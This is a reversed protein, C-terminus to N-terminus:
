NLDVSVGGILWFGPQPINGRDYYSVDFLNNATLYINWNGQKWNLKLDLLAFSPYAREEYVAKNQADWGILKNYGGERQQWRFQWDATLGKYIPHALGATFKHRLYDLVYNSILNNADRTQNLYKYGLNLRTASLQPLIEQLSVAANTEFGTKDV